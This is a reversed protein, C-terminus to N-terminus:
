LAAVQNRGAAKAAYLSRDSRKLLLEADEGAGHSHQRRELEDQSALKDPLQTLPDVLRSHM